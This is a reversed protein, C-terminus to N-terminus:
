EIKTQVLLTRLESETRGNNGSRIWHDNCERWFEPHRMYDRVTTKNAARMGIAVAIESLPCKPHAVLYRAAERMKAPDQVRARAPKEIERRLSAILKAPPADGRDGCLQLCHCLLRRRTSPPARWLMGWFGTMADWDRTAMREIERRSIREFNEDDAQSLRDAKPRKDPRKAM